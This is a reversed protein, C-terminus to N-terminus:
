SPKTAGAGGNNTYKCKPQEPQRTCGLFCAGFGGMVGGNGGRSVGVGKGVGRPTFNWAYIYTDIFALKNTHTHTHTHTHQNTLSNTGRRQGKQLKQKKAVKTQRATTAKTQREKNRTGQSQNKSLGSDKSWTTLTGFLSLSLMRYVSWPTHFVDYCRLCTFHLNTERWKEMTAPFAFHMQDLCQLRNLPFM